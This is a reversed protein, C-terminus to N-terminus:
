VVQAAFVNHGYTDGVACIVDGKSLAGDRTRALGRICALQYRIGGFGRSSDLINSSLWATRIRGASSIPVAYYAQSANEFHSCISKDISPENTNVVLYLVRVDSKRQVYGCECESPSYSLLISVVKSLAAFIEIRPPPTLDVNGQDHRIPFPDPYEFSCDLENV